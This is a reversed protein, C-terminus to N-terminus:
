NKDKLMVEDCQHAEYQVSIIYVKRSVLYLIYTYLYFRGLFEHVIYSEYLKGKRKEYQSYDWM